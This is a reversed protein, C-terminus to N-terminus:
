TFTEQFLVKYKAKLRQQQAATLSEYLRKYKQLCLRKLVTQQANLIADFVAGRTGMLVEGKTVVRISDYMKGTGLYSKWLRESVEKSLTETDVTDRGIIIGHQQDVVITIVKLPPCARVTTNSVIFYLLPLLIFRLM